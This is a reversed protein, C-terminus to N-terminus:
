KTSVTMSVACTYLQLVLQGSVIVLRQEPRAGFQVQRQRRVVGFIEVGAFVEVAEPAFDEGGDVPLHAWWCEDIVTAPCGVGAAKLGCCLAQENIKM